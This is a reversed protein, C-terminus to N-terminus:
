QRWIERSNSFQRESDITYTWIQGELLSYDGTANFITITITNGNIRYTGNGVATYGAYLTLGAMNIDMTVDMGRCSYRGMKLSPASQSSSRDPPSSSGNSAPLETFSGQTLRWTLGGGSFQRENDIHFTWVRGEMLGNNFKIAMQSGSILYPGGSTTKDSYDRLEFYGSSGGQMSLEM